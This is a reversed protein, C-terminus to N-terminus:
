RNYVLFDTQKTYHAAFDMGNITPDSFAYDTTGLYRGLLFSARMSDVLRTAVGRRRFQSLVWIRSIGCVVPMPTDSCMLVKGTDSKLVRYGNSIEEALLFGAVKKEQVYLFVKTKDPYRIGVESFGLDRDVVTLVEEVKKWMHRPDGPQVMVIRGSPFAGCNRENKWGPFRLREEVDNHVREHSSEDEADGITYVTGCTLCLTPGREQGADIQLQNPDTSLFGRRNPAKNLEIVNVGSQATDKYFIPFMKGGDEAAKVEEDETSGQSVQSLDSDTEPGLDALIDQVAAFATVAPDADQFQLTGAPVAVDVQHDALAEEEGEISEDLEDILHSINTEEEDDDTSSVSFKVPSPLHKQPSAVDPQLFNSTPSFLKGSLRPSPKTKQFYSEKLPSMHKRPSRRLPTHSKRYVIQGGKVEYDVATEKSMSFNGVKPTTTAAAPKPKGSPTSSSTGVQAAPKAAAKPTKPTKQANKSGPIEISMAPLESIKIEKPKPKKKPRKIAHAVGGRNLVPGSKVLRKLKRKKDKVPRPRSSEKRVGASRAHGSSGAKGKSAEVVKAASTYFSSVQIAPVTTPPSAPKAKEERKASPTQLIAEPVRIRKGNPNRRPVAIMLNRQMNRSISLPTKVQTYASHQSPTRPIFESSPLSELHETDEHEEGEQMPEVDAQENLGAEEEAVRDAGKRPTKAKEGKCPTVEDRLWGNRTRERLPSGGSGKPLLDLCKRSRPSSRGLEVPTIARNEDTKTRSRRGVM